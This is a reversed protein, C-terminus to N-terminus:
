AASNPLFSNEIGRRCHSDSIQKSTGFAKSAERLRSVGVLRWRACLECVTGERFYQLIVNVHKVKKAKSLSSHPGHIM